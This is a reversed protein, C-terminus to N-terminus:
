KLLTERNSFITKFSMDKLEPNFYYLSSKNERAEIIVWGAVWLIKARGAASHKNMHLGYPQCIYALEHATLGKTNNKLAKLIGYSSQHKQAERKCSMGCFSDKRKNESHVYDYEQNCWNCNRKLIPWKNKITIDAIRNCYESCYADHYNNKVIYGCSPHMCTKIM